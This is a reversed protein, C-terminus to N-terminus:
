TSHQQIANYWEVGHELIEARVRDDLLQDVLLFDVVQPITTADAQAALRTVDDSSLESGFLALDIDSGPRFKGTARSGFLLAREVRPNTALISRITDRYREKLGDDM